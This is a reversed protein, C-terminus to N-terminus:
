CAGAKAPWFSLNAKAFMWGISAFARYLRATPSASTTAGAPASFTSNTIASLTRARGTAMWASALARTRRASASNRYSPPRPTTILFAASIAASLGVPMITTDGIKLQVPSSAPEVVAQQPLPPNYVPSTAAAPVPPAPPLMPTTSAIQGLNRPTVHQQAGATGSMTELLKSQAALAVRLQEIQKQQEDLQTKLRRLEASSDAGAGNGPAPAPDEAWAANMMAVAVCSLVFGARRARYMQLGEKGTPRGTPKKALM